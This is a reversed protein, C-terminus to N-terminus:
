CGHGPYHFPRSGRAHVPQEYRCERGFIIPEFYINRRHPLDSRRRTREIAHARVGM